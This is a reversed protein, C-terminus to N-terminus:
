PRAHRDVFPWAADAFYSHGGDGVLLDCAGPAGAAADIPRLREFARRANPFASQGSAPVVSGSVPGNSVM